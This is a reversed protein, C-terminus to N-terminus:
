LVKGNEFSDVFVKGNRIVNEFQDTKILIQDWDMFIIKNKIHFNNMFIQFSSGIWPSDIFTKMLTFTTYSSGGLFGFTRINNSVM